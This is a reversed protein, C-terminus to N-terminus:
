AVPPLSQVTQLTVGDVVAPPDAFASGTRMWATLTGPAGTPNVEVQELPFTITGNARVTLQNYGVNKGHEGDDSVFQFSAYYKTGPVLGNGSLTVTTDTYIATM